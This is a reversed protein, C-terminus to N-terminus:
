VFSTNKDKVITLFRKQYFDRSIAQNVKVYNNIVHYNDFLLEVIRKDLLNEKAQNEIIKYIKDKDMGERYPRDESIATFIDSVTMIRSGTGIEQSNLHFPYGSGDLKEHHFAAWETIRQLGGISNLTYYTYYTHSRM